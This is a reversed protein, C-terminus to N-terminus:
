NKEMLKEVLNQLENIEKNKITVLKKSLMLAEKCTKVKERLNASVSKQNDVDFKRIGMEHDHKKKISKFKEEHYAIYEEVDRLLETAIPRTIFDGKRYIATEFFKKVRKM